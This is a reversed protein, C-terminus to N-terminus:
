QLWRDARRHVRGGRRPSRADAGVTSGDGSQLNRHGHFIDFRLWHNKTTFRAVVSGPKLLITDDLDDLHLRLTQDDVRIIWGAALRHRLHVLATM